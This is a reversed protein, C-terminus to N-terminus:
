DGPAYTLCAGFEPYEMDVVAGTLVINWRRPDFRSRPSFAIGANFNFGDYEGFVTLKQTAPWSIGGFVRNNFRGNGFGLTVYVFREDSGLRGTAVGYFSRCNGGPGLDITRDRRNSFDVVGVAFAPKDFTDPTLQVQANYAAESGEATPMHALFIGRGPKGFGAALLGTGNVEPGGTGIHIEGPETSGSWYGVMYNGWYPTYAVPVNLQIAGDFGVRGQPTVGFGGGPLASLYRFEYYDRIDDARACTALLVM